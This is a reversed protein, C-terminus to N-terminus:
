NKLHEENTLETKRSIASTAWLHRLCCSVWVTTTTSVGRGGTTSKVLMKRAAKAGLNKPWYIVFGFEVYIFAAFFVETSFFAALLIKIFNVGTRGTESTCGSQSTPSASLKVHNSDPFKARGIPSPQGSTGTSISPWSTWPSAARENTGSQFFYM